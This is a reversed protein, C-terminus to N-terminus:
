VISFADASEGVDAAEAKISVFHYRGALAAHHNGIIRFEILTDAEEPVV